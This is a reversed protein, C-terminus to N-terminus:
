VFIIASGRQVDLEGLVQTGTAVGVAMEMSLLSKGLKGAGAFQVLGPKILQDVIWRPQRVKRKLLDAANIGKPVRVSRGARSKNDM